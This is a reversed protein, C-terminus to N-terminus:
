IQEFVTIGHVGVGGQIITLVATFKGQTMLATGTVSLIDATHQIIVVM